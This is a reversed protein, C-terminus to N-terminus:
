ASMREILIPMALRDVLCVALLESDAIATGEALCEPNSLVSQLSGRLHPVASWRCFWCPGGLGPDGPDGRRHAGAPHRRDNWAAIREANLDVVTVQIEPCRDAIVAM